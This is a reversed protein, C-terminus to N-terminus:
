TFQIDTHALKTLTMASNKVLNGFFDRESSLSVPRNRLVALTTYTDIGSILNSRKHKYFQLSTFLLM